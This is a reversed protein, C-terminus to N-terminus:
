IPAFAILRGTTVVGTWVALSVWAAIRAHRPTPSVHDWTRVHRYVTAHFIGANLGAVVLLGLKIQFFTNASFKVPDAGFLLAGTVVMVGFGTWTWPGLRQVIATVPTRTLALGVLRLDLLAAFGVFLMIGVVHTTEVIPYAWISERLAISWSTDGLWALADTILPM